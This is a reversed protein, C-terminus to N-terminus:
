GNPFLKWSKIIITENVPTGIIGTTHRTFWINGCHIALGLKDNGIRILGIDGKEPSYTVVEGNRKAIKFVAKLFNEYESLIDEKQEFDSYKLWFREFLSYGRNLEIWRDITGACDTKLEYSFPKLIEQSIFSDLDQM